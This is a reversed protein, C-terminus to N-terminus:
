HLLVSVDAADRPSWPRALYIVNAELDYLGRLRGDSARQAQGSIAILNQPSRLRIEPLPHRRPWDTRADLEAELAAVLADMDRAERWSEAPLPTALVLLVCAAGIRAFGTPCSPFM